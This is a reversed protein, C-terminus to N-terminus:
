DLPLNLPEPHLPNVHLWYFEVFLRDMAAIDSALDGTPSAFQGTRTEELREKEAMARAKSYIADSIRVEVASAEAVDGHIRESLSSSGLDDWLSMADEHITVIFERGQVSVVYNFIPPSDMREIYDLNLFQV